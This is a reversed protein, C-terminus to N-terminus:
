VSDTKRFFLLLNGSEPRHRLGHLIANEVLPQLLSNPVLEEEPDLADDIEISYDFTEPLRLQSLQIYQELTDSESAITVFRNEAGDLYKRILSSFRVLYYNAQNVDNDLMFNQIASLANFMFHPNMQGQIAKLELGAMQQHFQLKKRARRQIQLIVGIVLGLSLVVVSFLFLGTSWWPSSIEFDFSGPRSSRCGDISEAVVEFRYTGPALASYTVERHFTSQWSSDLGLLRYDYKVRNQSLYSLCHFKFELQNESYALHTSSDLSAEKGRVMLQEIKVSPPICENAVLDKIAIISLGNNSGLFLSDGLIEICNLHNSLLGHEERLTLISTNEWNKDFAKLGFQTALFLHGNRDVEIDRIILNASQLYPTIQGNDHDLLYLGDGDTGILLNGEDDEAMSLISKSFSTWPILDGSETRSQFYLGDNRGIWIRDGIVKIANIRFYTSKNGWRRVGSNTDLKLLGHGTGMWVIGHADQTLAKIGNLLTIKGPILKVTKHNDFNLISALPDKQIIIPSLSNAPPLDLTLVGKDGSIVIKGGPGM